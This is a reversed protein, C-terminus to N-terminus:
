RGLRRALAETETVPQDCAFNECVYATAKGEEMTFDRAIPNIGAFEELEDDVLLVVVTFPKYVQRVTELMEAAAEHGPAVIVVERNGRYNAMVGSMFQSYAAPHQRVQGAFATITEVVRDTYTSDGTLTALLNLTELAMSNASPIAGDYSEKKRTIVTEATVATFYFGGRDQDWFHELAYDILSRAEKLYDASGTAQFLQLLGYSAFIYDDIFGEIGAEGDRYRHYLGGDDMRMKELLFTALERATEMIKEDGLLWGARSLAALLLGNWDTLIKDDLGPRIREERAALLKQRITEMRRAIESEAMEMEEALEADTRARYLHNAGTRQGTAEEIFTGEETTGYASRALPFEEENLVEKLENEQWVYFKGEEGESDADEASYFGGERDRMDRLLYEITKRVVDEYLEDGTSQWAESYALIMMAQDYLMKEFHPLFWEQDTSYRHFGFGVHDWIGGRAMATLTKEAMEATRSNSFLKAYRTLYILNHAAPFKPRTGFGGHKEDFSQEFQRTTTHCDELTMMGGEAQSDGKHLADVINTVSKTIEDRREHWAQSIAPLLNTMGPRGHRDEKPIYTAVFFPERDPTMFVSLPWGCNQSVMQCVTMYIHDIDPREERDVKINIFHENMLEAVQEDEFSEHEMVHCWHCTSYGISLFIPKDQSRAADFAEDSWEYWDVPNDAHQLLYPSKSDILRNSDNRKNDTM